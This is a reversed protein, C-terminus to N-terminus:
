NYWYKTEENTILKDSSDYFNLSILYANGSTFMNQYIGDVCITYYYDNIGGSVYKRDSTTGTVIPTMGDVTTITYKMSNIEEVRFPNSLHIEICKGTGPKAYLDGVTAVNDFRIKSITYIVEFNEGTNKNDYKGSVELYYTSENMLEDRSKFFEIRKNVVGGDIPEVERIVDMNGNLLRATLKGGVIMYDPDDVSVMFYIGPDDGDIKGGRVGAYPETYDNLYFNYTKEGLLYEKENAVAYPTITVKYMGGWVFVGSAEPNADRTVSMEASISSSEPFGNEIVFCNDFTGVCKEVLYRIRYGTEKEVTYSLNLVRNGYGLTNLRLSANNIGVDKMTNFLYLFGSTYQSIDFLYQKQCNNGYIDCVYAYFRVGYDTGPELEDISFLKHTSENTLDSISIKEDRGLYQENRGNSDTKYLEAYIADDRINAGSKYINVSFDAEKLAADIEPYGMSPIISNFSVVNSGSAIEGESILRSIVITRGGDYFVGDNRIKVDLNRSAGDVRLALKEEADNLRVTMMCGAMSPSSSIAGNRLCYFGGKGEADESQLIQFEDGFSFGVRGTDYYAILEVRIAKGLFEAIQYYFISFKGSSMQVDQILATESENATNTIRVDFQSVKGIADRIESNADYGNISILIRNNNPDTVVGYEVKKGGYTLGNLVEYQYHSGLELNSSRIKVLNVPAVVRYLANKTLGAFTIEKFDDSSDDINVSSTKVDGVYTELKKTTVARDIDFYKYKWTASTLASDVPYMQFVPAQKEATVSVSRLYETGQGLIEPYWADGNEPDFVGDGNRDLALRCRFRYINGRYLNGDQDDVATGETGYLVPIVTRPLGSEEYNEWRVSGGLVSTRGASTRTIMVDYEAFLVAGKEWDSYKASPRIAYGVVTNGNLNGDYELGFEEARSNIITIVDIANDPDDIDPVYESTSFTFVNNSFPLENRFITYDYGNDLVITYTEGPFDSGTLGFTEPTLYKTKGFYENELSSSYDGAFTDVFSMSAVVAGDTNTGQYITMKMGALTSAELRADQGEESSLGFTLLFRDNGTTVSEEFNAKMRKPTKTQVKVSGLYARDVGDNNDQLDISGWIQFTYTENARLNNINIPLGGADEDWGIVITEYTGVSNTYVVDYSDSQMVGDVDDVIIVGNIQEWTVGATNGSNDEKFSLRPYTKGDMKMVSNEEEPYFVYEVTKENDYVVLVLRFSYGVNRRVIEGDVNVTAGGPTSTKISVVPEDKGMVARTDYIEYRYELIGYDNDIVNSAQINFKSERKDISFTLDSVVPKNKLTMIEVSQSYGNDASTGNIVYNYVKVVYGLNSNLGANFVIEQHNNNNNFTIVRSDGIKVNNMSFIGVEVQAVDSYAERDVMVAITSNTAYSKRLTIGLSETRFIKSMLVKDYDVDNFTYTGKAIMTYDTDPVLDNCDINITSSGLMGEVTQIVKQSANEIISVSISSTILEDDDVVGLEAFVGVATVDFRTPRVEPQEMNLDETDIIETQINGSGNIESMNVSEVVAPTAVDSIAIEFAEIENQELVKQLVDVEADQDLVLNTLSIYKKSERSIEGSLLDITIRGTSINANKAATRYSKENSYIKVAGGDIYEIYAFDGFNVVEDNGLLLRVGNGALLFKEDDVRMLMTQFFVNKNEETQFRYEGNEHEITMGSFVNYYVITEQNINNLDIAVVRDLPMLAGDAFHVVSKKSVLVNGSESQFGVNDNFKKYDYREGSSFPFVSAAVGGPIDKILFGDDSFTGSRFSLNDYVYKGGFGLAILILGLFIGFLTKWKEFIVKM